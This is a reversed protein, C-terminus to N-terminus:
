YGQEGAGKIIANFIQDILELDDADLTASEDIRRRMFERANARYVPEVHEGVDEIMEVLGGLVDDLMKPKFTSDVMAKFVAPPPGDDGSSSSVIQEFQEAIHMVNRHARIHFSAIPDIPTLRAVAEKFEPITSLFPGAMNTLMRNWVAPEIAAIASEAEAPDVHESLRRVLENLVSTIKPRINVNMVRVAAHLDLLYSLVNRYAQKHEEDRALKVDARRFLWNVVAVVAGGIIGAIITSQLDM